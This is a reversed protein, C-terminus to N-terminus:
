EHIVWLRVINMLGSPLADSLFSYENPPQQAYECCPRTAERSRREGLTVWYHETSTVGMSSLM